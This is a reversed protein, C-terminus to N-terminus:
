TSSVGASSERRHVSREWNSLQRSIEVTVEMFPLYRKDTIVKLDSLLRLGLQVEVLARRAGSINEMKDFGKGALDSCLLLTKAERRIDEGLSYRFRRDLGACLVTLELLLRYALGYVPLADAPKNVITEAKEKVPSSKEISAKWGDFGSLDAQTFIM